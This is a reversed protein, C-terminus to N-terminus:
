RQVAAADPISADLTPEAGVRFASWGASGDALKRYLAVLGVSTHEWTYRALAV